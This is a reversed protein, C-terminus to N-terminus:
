EIARGEAVTLPIPKPYWDYGPQDYPLKIENIKDDINNLDNMLIKKDSITYLVDDMYLSRRVASPSGYYYSDDDDSSHTISGRVDIGDISVDLVYAGQWVRNRYYGYINDYVRGKVERIPLVLVGKDKDFLFAKHEYLAESDTGQEGIELKDVLEPNEVDTVDFLAVKVGKTSVGGWENGETEKGIGIIHDEDYPHLYDSYGPIKLQGLIKPTSPISLDIVFFPDINKFTVMYLRDGIFRASYIREDPAIDELKGVVDLDEDLVYVNNYMTSDRAYVYTTTAVRFYGNYEDMSFQNLISGSVEGKSDYDINGDEINIKHIVTKRLEQDLKIQYVETAKQMDEMLQKKEKEEMSNYMTELIASIKTWKEYEAADESKISLIDAKVDSPLLPVIVSYFRDQNQHQYFRYPMNKQYAIYIANESVYMTNSYGMMYSKADIEENELDISAVTHFVYNGEPNDFYYIDPQAIIRSGEKIMPVDVLPGYFNVDEKAVFYINSGIMRADFFYGSFSYNKEVEPQSRDSVDYVYVRTLTKYSSQPIIEYQPLILSEDQDHTFLILKDGNVFLEIPQGKIETESVIEADEAPYADMIVLKNQVIQYIYKGDNKVFDSEDVNEVQINTTSYDTASSGAATPASSDMSEAMATEMGRKVMLGTGGYRNGNNQLQSQQLFERLQDVSEFKKIQQSSEFQAANSISSETDREPQTGQSCAVLMVLSAAIMLAPIITQKM